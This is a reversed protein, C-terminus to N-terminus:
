ASAPQDHAARRQALAAFASLSDPNAMAGQAAASEVPTGTLIKKVPVELKKASLTRPVARVQHIEDPVHRPSLATRLERCIKRRLDDDLERGEALVVFLLLEGAGGHDDELHVVVSDVVDDLGEVVSYFEATGLRVGGRNLTADSRGTIVCGGRENVTIWDGHRWVGPYVDFYAERYRSGDPDNWFGVPMSPMPETIVLEGLHGIVPTGDASRAEVKAGLARCAIEGAYVALLPVGGVFGTCVDTGGSLSQLQLADGVNEYVWTFGEAPLPAGTSGVGRLASLDAIERPVLGAKRCALLFPASTGLYTTGTEAALRWLVGLDPHGPNGDFLVITAGVAPGSALFNWMMWGTTTFWFFRDAPGLDHHLALMKLHELLIGGHGHVIPKPLGTTGSSYLVYLPHDFPVPTFTLPEDTAAALDPWSIAGQPPAGAPDLYAIGVTHRLSPLAARIAAVEARRDVPKDGYRYGDVAVLVSPEIQQWRDTVSRTGFEPACSSFVAGLSATALMLVYTEPINPAYAAVRDGARVGLRRLGAAVRRVQERLGAATLVVPPRTQGQAIVVPEDDGRGPMRLVNEAYNLTAGPFWRAGPMERRTLTATPPTHSLVDFHDWISRWFADLDTVSWRWLADYDAFDLGRHERLWRLYAGIRSRERVDAPPAWLMDGM